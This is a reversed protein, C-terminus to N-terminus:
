GHNDRAGAEDAREAREALQERQAAEDPTVNSARMVALGNPYRLDIRLLDELDALEPEVTLFRAVRETLAERGLLLTRGDGLQLTWAGRPDLELAAVELGRRQLAGALRYWAAFVDEVRQEPGSLRVLGQMGATGAVEFRDGHESLLAAQNWRAVARHEIVEIVLADPWQRSVLARAVWPLAEVDLQVKDVDLAFFGSRAEATVAARVQAATVRELRGEVELWRIPWRESDNPQVAVWILLLLGAPAILSILWLARPNM